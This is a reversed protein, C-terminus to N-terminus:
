DQFTVWREDLPRSEVVPEQQLVWASAANLNVMESEEPYETLDLLAYPENNISIPSIFRFNNGGAEFAITNVRGTLSLMQFRYVIPRNGAGWESPIALTLTWRDSSSVGDGCIGIMRGGRNGNHTVLSDGYSSLRVINFRAM